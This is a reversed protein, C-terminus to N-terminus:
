EPEKTRRAWEKVPLGWLRIFGAADEHAFSDDNDYTALETSYLSRPSRRGVPM